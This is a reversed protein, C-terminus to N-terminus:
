PETVVLSSKEIALGILNMKYLHFHVKAMGPYLPHAITHSANASIVRQPSTPGLTHFRTLDSTSVSLSPRNAYLLNSDFSSDPGKSNNCGDTAQASPEMITPVTALMDNAQLYNFDFDGQLPTPQDLAMEGAVESQEPVDTNIWQRPHLPPALIDFYTGSEPVPDQWRPPFQPSEEFDTHPKSEEAKDLPWELHLRVGLLVSAHKAFLAIIERSDTLGTKRM